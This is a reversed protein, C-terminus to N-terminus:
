RNLLKKDYRVKDIAFYQELWDLTYIIDDPLPATFTQVTKTFPHEFELKWAHLAQRMLHATLLEYVKRKMNEPVNSQVLKISNYLLDGLVPFNRNALHVRIQHMRGTELNIELLAFYHYFRIIKYSTLARRGENSVSMKRPNSVSRSINSEIRDEAPEPIGTTIALYTKKVKRRAFMDSLLSQATDNKAILMLGSTGKDLRHVIGPRNLASGSALGDGFRFVIANVLTNDPNGFGPHVIMGAPKNVVALNEDEFVIDLPIDQPTIDTTPQEPLCIHIEDGICLQYSKKVPISNVTVMGDTILKEIFTRSYLEPVKVAVLYKDLRQIGESHYILHLKDNM